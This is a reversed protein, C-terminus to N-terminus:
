VSINIVSGRDGRITTQEEGGAQYSVSRTENLSIVERQNVKQVTETKQAENQAQAKIQTNQDANKGPRFNNGFGYPSFGIHSGNLPTM